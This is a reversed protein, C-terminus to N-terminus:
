EPRTRSTILLAVGDLIRDLGFDLANDREDDAVSELAAALVPMRDRRGAVLAALTSALAEEPHRASAAQQAIGRVHGTLTVAVDLMEAGRLGTGDLATVAVDLWGVENPGVPRAGVTAAIAWPHHWFREFLAHAWGRLRPRWDGDLEPPEGVARDVMLAVLEDKGPVYRYLAMKTVGLSAAVRQMTVAALGDADAIEVGARAVADLTLGPRPGRRPVSQPEWLLATAADFSPPM